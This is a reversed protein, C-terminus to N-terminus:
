DNFKIDIPSHTIRDEVNPIQMYDGYIQTLMKDYNPPISVSLGEFLATSPPFYDEKEFIQKKYGYGCGYNVLYKADKDNNKTMLREQLHKLNRSSVVSSLIIIVRAKM